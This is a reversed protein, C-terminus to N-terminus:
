SNALAILLGFVALAIVALVVGAPIRWDPPRRILLNDTGCELCWEQDRSLTAGCRRCKM